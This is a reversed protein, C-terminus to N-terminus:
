PVIRHRYLVDYYTRCERELSRLGDPLRDSPPRYPEFRTSAEVAEYWYQAWVGDTARPGAPWSLMATTFEVGLAGCLKRLMEHPRELVDRADIVPPAEGSATRTREFLDLQQPLGTDELRPESVVKSLSILTEEPSRILFAHQLADLWDGHMDPLLHHTMHKQYFIWKGGPVPGTLWTVVKRWDTEGGSIIEDRGPHEVDTAALYHAYFPEDSVFTDGRSEWSRMVATSINRPGSWM